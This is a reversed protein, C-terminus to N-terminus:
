RLKKNKSISSTVGLDRYIVTSCGPFGYSTFHTFVPPFVKTQAIRRQPQNILNQSIEVYVSIHRKRRFCINM